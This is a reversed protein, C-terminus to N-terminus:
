FVLEAFIRMKKNTQMVFFDKNVM